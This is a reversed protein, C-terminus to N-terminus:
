LDLYKFKRGYKLNRGLNSIMDDVEMEGTKEFVDQICIKMEEDM